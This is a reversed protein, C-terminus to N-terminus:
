RSLSYKNGVCKECFQLSNVFEGYPCGVSFDTGFDSGKRATNSSYGVNIIIPVIGEFSYGGGFDAVNNSFTSDKLM